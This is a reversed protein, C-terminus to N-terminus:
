DCRQHMCYVADYCRYDHGDLGYYVDYEESLALTATSQEEQDLIFPVVRNFTDDISVKEYAVATSFTSTAVLISSLLFSYTKKM